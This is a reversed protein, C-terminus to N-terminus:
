DRTSLKALTRALVDVGARIAEPSAYEDPRHSWGNRCPIFIMGTDCLRAMFLSDHFARSVMRRCSCGGDQCAAEIATIIRAAMAAPPDANLTEVEAKLGRRETRAIAELIATVARDRPESAVDRVDITLTVASPVSNIAGPHVQCIGVTGVTDPSGTTKAAAEVALVIEAAACLADRREPMLVAGAHGGAGEIKVRMAAPAAIATVAGIAIGERELIPGQEIHLEVFASYCGAVLRVEALEGQFGAIQRIDNLRQGEADRLDALANPALVGSMARSGICGIGFRTPEESTFM